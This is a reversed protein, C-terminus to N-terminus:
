IKKKANRLKRNFYYGIKMDFSLSTFKAKTLTSFNVDERFAQNFQHTYNPQLILVMKTKLYLSVGLGINAGFYMPRFYDLDRIVEKDESNKRANESTLSYHVERNSLKYGTHLGVSFILRSRKNIDFHSNLILPIEVYQVNVKKLTYITAPTTQVHIDQYGKNVFFVGTSFSTSESFFHKYEIGYNYSLKMDYKDIKNILGAKIDAKNFRNLQRDVKDTMSELSPSVMLTIQWVEGAKCNASITLAFLLIALIKNM